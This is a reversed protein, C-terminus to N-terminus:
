GGVTTVRTVRGPAESPVGGVLDEVVGRGARLGAKVASNMFSPAAAIGEAGALRVAGFGGGLAGGFGAMDGPAMIMYSGWTHPEANWVTEVVASPEGVDYLRRLLAVARGKREGEPLGLEPLLPEGGSFSAIARVEGGRDPQAASLYGLLTDTVAFASPDVPEEFVFHMKRVDGYVSGSVARRLVPPPPPDFRIARYCTFPVALIACRARAAGQGGDETVWRVEAGGARQRIETVPSLYLVRDGLEAALAEAVRGAGGRV